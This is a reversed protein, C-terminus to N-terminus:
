WSRNNLSYRGRRVYESLRSRLLALLLRAVELPQPTDCPSYWCLMSFLANEKGEWWKRRKERFEIVRLSASEKYLAQRTNHVTGFYWPDHSRVRCGRLTRNIAAMALQDAVHLTLGGGSFTHFSMIHTM